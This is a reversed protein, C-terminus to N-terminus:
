SPGGTKLQAAGCEPCTDPTARLDYGCNQCHGAAFRRKWLRARVLPFVLFMLMPAWFPIRTCSISSWNSSHYTSSFGLYSWRPPVLQWLGHPDPPDHHIGRATEFHSLRQDKARFDILFLHGQASAVHRAYANTSATRPVDWQVSDCVYYSRVWLVATGVFLLASALALTNLIISPPRVVTMITAHLLKSPLDRKRSRARNAATQLVARSTM